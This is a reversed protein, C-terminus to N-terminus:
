QMLQKHLNWGIFIGSIWSIAAVLILLNTTQSDWHLPCIKYLFSESTSTSSSTAVVMSKGAMFGTKPAESAKASSGSATSSGPKAPKNGIGMFSMPCQGEKGSIPCKEGDAKKVDVKKPVAPEQSPASAVASRRRVGQEDLTNGTLLSTEAELTGAVPYKAKLKSRWENLTEEDQTDSPTWSLDDLDAPDLSMTALCRTADRGALISYGGEPGYLERGASVDLLEGALSFLIRGGDAGTYGHLESLTLQLLQGEPIAQPAADGGDAQDKAAGYSKGPGPCIQYCEDMMVKTDEYIRRMAPIMQERTTDDLEVKDFDRMYQQVRAPEMKRRVGEFAYFQVGPAGHPVCMKESVMQGLYAGGSLVANYQLFHHALLLSPNLAVDEELHSLYAATAPSESVMKMANAQWSAGLLTQLDVELARTRLLKDDHVMVLEDHDAYKELEQFCKHQRALWEAYQRVGFSQRYIMQMWPHDM